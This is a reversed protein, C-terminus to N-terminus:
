FKAGAARYAAEVDAGSVVTVTRHHVTWISASGGLQVMKIKDDGRDNTVVYLHGATRPLTCSVVTGPMHPMRYEIESPDRVDVILAPPVRLSGGTGDANRSVLANKAMMRQYYWTGIYRHDTSDVSVPDGTKRAAAPTAAM